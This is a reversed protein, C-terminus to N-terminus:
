AENVYQRCDAHVRQFRPDQTPNNPVTGVVSILEGENENAPERCIACLEPTTM